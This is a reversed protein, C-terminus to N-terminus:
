GATNVLAIGLPASEFMARFRMESNSLAELAGALQETRQRVRIELNEAAHRLSEEANKRERFNGIQHGVTEVTDLVDKQPPRPRRSFCGIVATVDGGARVPFALVSVFGTQSQIGTAQEIAPIWIPERERVIRGPLDMEPILSHELVVSEVGPACWIGEFRLATTPKETRWLIALDWGLRECLVQLARRMADSTTTSEALALTIEYQIALLNEAQKRETIDRGAAQYEPKGGSSDYLMRVNWQLWRTEGNPLTVHNEITVSPNGPNLMALKGRVSEADDMQFLPLNAQGLLDERKKQFLTCFAENVFTMTGDDGFRCILDVQDEVIARYRLESSQLARQIERRREIESHLENNARTLEDVFHRRDTIDRLTAVIAIPKGEADRVVNRSASIWRYDGHPHKWRYEVSEYLNEEASEQVTFFWEMFMVRDEPEVCELITDDTMAMLESQTFGLIRISSPSIYDYTGSRLDRRYLVDRANDLMTRFREESSRLEQEAKKRGSIDAFYVAVGEDVPHLHWFAWRDPVGTESELHVPRRSDAVIELTKGFDTNRMEPLVESLQRGIVEDKKKGFYKLAHTNIDGFRNDSDLLFYNDTIGDLVTEIRGRARELDATRDRIERELEDRSNLLREEHAKRETIDLTVGICGAINGDVGRMPEVHAELTRDNVKFEYTATQGGLAVTHAKFASEQEPTLRGGLAPLGPNGVQGIAEDERGFAATGQLSTYNLALDTTWVVAPMQRLILKLKTERARLEEEVAVRQTIDLCILVVNEPAGNHGLFVRGAAEIWRLSGDEAVLRLVKKFPRFDRLTGQLADEAAVRDEVCVRQLFSELSGDLNGARAGLIHEMEASASIRDEQVDWEISGLHALRQVEGLQAQQRVKEEDSLKRVILPALDIGANSVARIRQEDHAPDSKMAFALVVVVRDMAMVPIAVASTLGSDKWAQRDSLTPIESVDNVWLPEQAAWCRGALGVGPALLTGQHLRLNKFEERVAHSALALELTSGAPLWAEGYPWSAAEGIMELCQQLAANVSPAQGVALALARVIRLKEGRISEDRIDTIVLSIREEDAGHLPNVSLYASLPKENATQLTLLRQSRGKSGERLLNEFERQDSKVVWRFFSSSCLNESKTELLMSLRENSFVVSGNYDLMAVGEPLSELLPLHIPHNKELARFSRLAEEAAQLRTQLERNKQM